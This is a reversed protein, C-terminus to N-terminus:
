KPCDGIRKANIIVTMPTDKSGPASLTLDIMGDYSDSRTFLEMRGRSTVDDRACALEYTTRNGETEVTSLACKNDPQPLTRTKHDIDAQSLCQQATSPPEAQKNLTTTVRMEWLGPQKPPIARTALPLGGLAISVALVPFRVASFKAFRM